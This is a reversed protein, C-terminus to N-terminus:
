LNLIDADSMRAYNIERPSSSRTAGTSSGSSGAIDIRREATRQRTRRDNNAAVITSTWENLVRKAVAPIAQRARGSVLSVIARQHDSDLSGNRFADRLQQTLQRNSRLTTDLERYIEGVVRARASKSVGEPLLREVQSEITELVGEVAAANTSHFFETQAPTPNPAPANTVRADRGRLQSQNQSESSPQSEDSARSSLNLPSTLPAPSVGATRFATHNAAHEAAPAPPQGAGASTSRRSADQPAPTNAPNLASVSAAAQRAIAEALSAFAAPDLAAISRALEAHDEARPSFFLADMRNLDALLAAGEKAAEPSAFTERYSQADQWAARLDPNADLADRIEAPIDATNASRNSASGEDPWVETSVEARQRSSLASSHSASGPDPTPNTAGAEPRRPQSEEEARLPLTLNAPQFDASRSAVADGVRPSSKRPAVLGLIEDDTASPLLSELTRPPAEQAAAAAPSM